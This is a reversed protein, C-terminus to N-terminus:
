ATYYPKVQFAIFQLKKDQCFQIAVNLAFTFYGWPNINIIDVSEYLGISILTDKLNNIYSIIDTNDAIGICILINSSYLKASSIFKIIKSHDPMSTSSKTHIRTVVLLNNNMTLPKKTKVTSKIHKIHNTLNSLSYQNILIYLFGLVGIILILVFLLIYRYTSINM